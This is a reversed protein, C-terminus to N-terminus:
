DGAPLPLAIFETALLRMSLSTCDIETSITSSL